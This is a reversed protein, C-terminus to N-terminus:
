SIIIEKYKEEGIIFKQIDSYYLLCEDFNKLNDKKDIIRLLRFNSLIDQEKKKEKDMFDDITIKNMRVGLDHGKGDYEIAINKYVLDIYYKKYHYNLEFDQLMEKLNYQAKSVPIGKEFGSSTYNKGYFNQVNKSDECKKQIEEVKMPNDVGYKEICTEKARKTRCCKSCADKLNNKKSRNNSQVSRTFIEGCYDCEYKIKMKSGASLDEARVSIQEGIKNIKYGKNTYYDYMDRRCIKILFLQGKVIM